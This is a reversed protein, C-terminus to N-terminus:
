VSFGQRLFKKLFFLNQAPHQWETEAEGGTAYLGPAPLFPLLGVGALRPILNIPNPCTKVGSKGVPLRGWLFLVRMGWLSHRYYVCISFFKM